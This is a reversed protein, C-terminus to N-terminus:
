KSWCGIGYSVLSRIWLLTRTSPLLACDIVEWLGLGWEEVVGGVIEEVLGMVMVRSVPLEIGSSICTSRLPVCAIGGVGIVVGGGGGYGWVGVM